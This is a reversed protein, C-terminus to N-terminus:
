NAGRDSHDWTNKLLPMVTTAYLKSDLSKGNDIIKDSRHAGPNLFITAEPCAIAKTTVEATAAATSAPASIASMKNKNVTSMSDIYNNITKNTTAIDSGTLLQTFLEKISATLAKVNVGPDNYASM